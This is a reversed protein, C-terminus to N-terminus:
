AEAWIRKANEMGIRSGAKCDELGEFEISIYSDYGSQKIVRVIEKMDIDGQGVIAGRLYNGSTTQFWGEGPNNYSPRLYFDKLHIMSAYPLNKKVAAVPDEDVCMFNGIDMTTKYNTRGVAHILRQVRDSAQIYFGHNELSTTIGYQAAHDAIIRCAQVLLELDSEFHAISCEPKPRSAVDHRLLKVGLRNAIDVHKKVREIESEYGEQNEKVFNSSICYNSIEIGTEKAKQRIADALTPDDELSFGFPSIEVHEGGNDAIWQIAKFIDLENTKFAQSLSYTSLGIKM